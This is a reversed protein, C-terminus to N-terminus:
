KGRVLARVPSEPAGDRRARIAIGLHVAFDEDRARQVPNVEFENLTFSPFLEKMKEPAPLGDNLADLIQEAMFVSYAERRREAVNLCLTAAQRARELQMSALAALALQCFAAAHGDETDQRRIYAYAEPWTLEYIHAQGEEAAARAINALLVARFPPDQVRPEIAYFLELARGSEGHQHMWIWALDNVMRVLQSHGPGYATIAERAYKMGEDLEGSEFHMVALDYLADGELRRVGHDRASRLALSHFRVSDPFNGRQRNLNGLGSLALAHHEWDEAATARDATYRLWAEADGYMAVRRLLRAIHYAVPVSEPKLLLATQYLVITARVAHLETEICEGTWAVGLAIAEQTHHDPKERLIAFTRGARTALQSPLSDLNPPATRIRRSAAKAALWSQVEAVLQALVPAVPEPMEAEIVLCANSKDGGSMFSFPFAPQDPVHRRKSM